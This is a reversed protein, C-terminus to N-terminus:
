RSEPEEEAQKAKKQKDIILCVVIIAVTGFFILNSALEPLPKEFLATYIKGILIMAISGGMMIYFLITIIRKVKLNAPSNITANRKEQKALQREEKELQKKKRELDLKM